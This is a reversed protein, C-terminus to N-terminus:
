FKGARGELLGILREVALRLQKLEETVDSTHNFLKKMFYFLMGLLALQLGGETFLKVIDM